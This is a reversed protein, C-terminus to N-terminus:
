RTPVVNNVSTSVVGDVAILTSSVDSATRHKLNRRMPTVAACASEVVDEWIKEKLM